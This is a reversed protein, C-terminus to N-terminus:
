TFIYRSFIAIINTTCVTMVNWWWQIFSSHIGKCHAAIESLVSLVVINLLVNVELHNYDIYKERKRANIYNFGVREIKELCNARGNTLTHKEKLEKDWQILWVYHNKIYIKYQLCMIHLCLVNHHYIVFM